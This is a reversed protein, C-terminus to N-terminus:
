QMVQGTPVMIEPGLGDKHFIMVGVEEYRIHLDDAQFFGDCRM